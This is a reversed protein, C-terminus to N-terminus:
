ACWSIDTTVAYKFSLAWVGSSRNTTWINYLCTQLLCPSFDFRQLKHRLRLTPPRSSQLHSLCATRQLRRQKDCKVSHWLFNKGVGCNRMFISWMLLVVGRKPTIQWWKPLVEYLRGKYLIQSSYCWGNRLYPYPGLFKFRIVHCLWAGKLFPKDDM